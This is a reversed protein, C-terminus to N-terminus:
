WGRRGTYAQLMQYNMFTLYGFMIALYNDKKYLAWVAVLIGAAMSLQLAARLADRRGSLQFAEHAVQGGDLPYIPLLNVLGWWINIFLMDNVFEWIRLKRNEVGTFTWWLLNERDFHFNVPHHSAYMLAVVVAALLFGAFPGALSIMIQVRPNHYTPRYSALGGLGHLTIWANWGYHRIAVAHGLEHVLISIFSAIVWSLVLAPNGETASLCMLVSVLWFLPHVRVPFGFLTFNLDAGSRPPESLLM